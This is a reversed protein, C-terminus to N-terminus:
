LSSPRETGRVGTVTATATMSALQAAEEEAKSSLLVARGTPVTPVMVPVIVPVLMSVSVLVAPEALLAKVDGGKSVALEAEAASAATTPAAVAVKM